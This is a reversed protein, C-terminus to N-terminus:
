FESSLAGDDHKGPPQPFFEEGFLNSSEICRSIGSQPWRFMSKDKEKWKLDWLLLKEM